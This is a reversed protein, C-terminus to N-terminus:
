VDTVISKNYKKKRSLVLGLLALGLASISSPEPVSTSSVNFDLTYDNVASGTGLKIAYTGHGLSNPVISFVNSELLDTGIMRADFPGRNNLIAGIGDNSWGLNGGQGSFAALIISDLTSGSDISFVFWDDDDALNTGLTTGIITSTGTSLFGLDVGTFFASGDGPADGDISEDYIITANAANSLVYICLGLILNKM